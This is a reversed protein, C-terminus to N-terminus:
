PPHSRAIKDPIIQNNLRNFLRLFSSMFERKGGCYYASAPYGTLFTELKKLHRRLAIGIDGHPLAFPTSIAFLLPSFDTALAHGWYSFLMYGREFISSTMLQFSPTSAFSAKHPFHSAHPHLTKLIRRSGYPDAAQHLM